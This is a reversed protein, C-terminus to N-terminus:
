GDAAWVSARLVLELRLVLLGSAVEDHQVAEDEVHGLADGSTGV